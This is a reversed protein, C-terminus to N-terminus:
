PSAFILRAVLLLLDNPNSGGFNTICSGYHFSKRQPLDVGSQIAQFEVDKLNSTQLPSGSVLVPFISASLM